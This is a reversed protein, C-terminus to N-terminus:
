GQAKAYTVIGVLLLMVIIIHGLYSVFMTTIPFEPVSESFAEDQMVGVFSNSMIMAVVVLPIFLILSIVFFVPHTDLFYASIIVFLATLGFAFAVIGDFVGPYANMWGDMTKKAEKNKSDDVKAIDDQIDSFSPYVFFAVMGIISVILIVFLSDGVIDAKESKSFIM